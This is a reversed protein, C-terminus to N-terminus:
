RSEVTTGTLQTSRVGVNLSFRAVLGVVDVVGQEGVRHQLRGVDRDVV